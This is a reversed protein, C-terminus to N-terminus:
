PQEKRDEKHLVDDIIEEGEKKVWFLLFYFVFLCYFMFLFIM